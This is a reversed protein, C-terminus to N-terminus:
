FGPHVPTSAWFRTSPNARTPPTAQEMLEVDSRGPTIGQIPKVKKAGTWADFHTRVSEYYPQTELFKRYPTLDPAKTKPMAHHRAYQVISDIFYIDRMLEAISQTSQFVRYEITQETFNMASYRLSKSSDHERCLRLAERAGTIRADHQDRGPAIALSAYRSSDRGAFHTILRPNGYVFKQARFIGRTLLQYDTLKDAGDGPISSRLVSYGKKSTHIHIGCSSAAFWEDSSRVDQMLCNLLQPNAEIHELSFPHTVFELGYDGISSDTKAYVLDGSASDAILNAMRKMAPTSVTKLELEVGFFLPGTGFFKPAPKYSYSHYTPVAGTITCSPCHTTNRTRAEEHVSFHSNCTPCRTVRRTGAVCCQGVVRLVYARTTSSPYARAAESHHRDQNEDGCLECTFQAALLAPYPIDSHLGERDVFLSTAVPLGSWNMRDHPGSFTQIIAHGEGDHIVCWCSGHALRTKPLLALMSACPYNQGDTHTYWTAVRHMPPSQDGCWFQALLENTILSVHGTITYYLYDGTWSTWLEGTRLPSKPSAPTLVIPINDTDVFMREPHNPDAYVTISDRAHTEPNELVVYTSSLNIVVGQSTVAGPLLLECNGQPLPVLEATDRTWTSQLASVSAPNIFTASHITANYPTRDNPLMLTVGRTRVELVIAPMMSTDSMLQAGPVLADDSFKRTLPIAFPSPLLALDQLTRRPAGYLPSIGHKKREHVELVVGDDGPGSVNLLFVTGPLLKSPVHGAYSNDFAACDVAIPALVEPPPQAVLIFQGDHGKYWQDRGVQNTYNVNLYRTDPTQADTYAKIIPPM